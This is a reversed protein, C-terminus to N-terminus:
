DKLCRVSILVKKDSVGHDLFEFDYYMYRGYVCDGDSGYCGDSESASWWNGFAGANVFRGFKQSFGGGPLASFGYDDTGNGGNKWGNKAKLKKGAISTGGVAMELEKWEDDSPLHFGPPCASKAAEWDYLGGYKDCNVPNNDYCKFVGSSPAINSNCKQWIQDGIPVLDEICAGVDDKNDDSSCSFTFEMALALTATLLLNKM